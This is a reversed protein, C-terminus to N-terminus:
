FDDLHERASSMRLTHFLRFSERFGGFFVDSNLSRVRKHYYTINHIGISTGILQLHKLDIPQTGPLTRTVISHTQKELQPNCDVTVVKSGM